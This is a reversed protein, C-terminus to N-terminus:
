KYYVNETIYDIIEEAVEYKIGKSTKTGLLVVAMPRLEDGAIPLAFLAVLTGGAEPTYGSKGGIYDKQHLQVFQNNNRWMRYKDGTVTAKEPIRTLSLIEPHNKYLYQVLSLLDAPSSVNHRSLGSADNYHTASMGLKAAVDNMAQMFDKRGFSEAIEEAIDNNSELLLPYFLEAVDADVGLETATLATTLKSLSAIPYSTHSNSEIIVSGTLLDAVVYGKAELEPPAPALASLYYTGETDQSIELTEPSEYVGRYASVSATAKALNKGGYTLAATGVWGLSAALIVAIVYESKNHKRFTSV